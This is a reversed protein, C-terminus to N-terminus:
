QVKLTGFQFDKKRQGYLLFTNDGVYDSYSPLFWTDMDDDKNTFITETRVSGDNGIITLDTYLANKGANKGSSEREDRNKRDNYVLYVGDDGYGAVYSTFSPYRNSFNKEVKKIWNLNGEKSFSPVIIENTHYVYYTTTTTGGNPNTSTTTHTVVYNEEAIFQLSGDKNTFIEYIDFRSLGKNKEIAKDKILGELFEPTFKHAKSVTASGSKRSINTMFVGDHSYKSSGKDTYFGGVYMEDDGGFFVGADSVLKESGIDVPYEKVSGEKISIVKYDYNPVGKERESAVKWVKATLHVTGDDSVYYQQITIQKDPYPLEAVKKWLLSFNNDFVYINFKEKDSDMMSGTKLVVIKSSDESVDTGSVDANLRGAEFGFIVKRTKFPITAVEKPKGVLNGDKSIECYFIKYSSAKKDYSELIAYVKGRANIVNTVPLPKDNHEFPLEKEAILKHNYDFKM